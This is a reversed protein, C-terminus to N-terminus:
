YCQKLLEYIENGINYKQVMEEKSLFKFDEYIFTKEFQNLYKILLKFSKINNLCLFEFCLQFEDININEKICKKLFFELCKLSDNLCSCYILYEFCEIKTKSDFFGNELCFMEFLYFYHNYIIKIKNVNDVKILSYIYKSNISGISEIELNIINPM